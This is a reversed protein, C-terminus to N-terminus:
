DEKARKVANPIKVQAAKERQQQVAAAKESKGCM